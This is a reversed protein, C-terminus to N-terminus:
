WLIAIVRYKTVWKIEYWQRVSKDQNFINPQTIKKIKNKYYQKIKLSLYSPTSYM